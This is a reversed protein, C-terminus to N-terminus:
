DEEISENQQQFFVKLNSGVALVERNCISNSHKLGQYSVGRSYSPFHSRSAVM